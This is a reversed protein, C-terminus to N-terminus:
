ETIANEFSDIFNEGVGNAVAEREFDQVVQSDVAGPSGVFALASALGQQFSDNDIARQTEQQQKQKLENRSLNVAM